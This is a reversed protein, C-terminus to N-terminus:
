THHLLFNITSILFVYGSAPLDQLNWLPWSGSGYPPPHSGFIATVLYFTCFPAPLWFTQIINPLAEPLIAALGRPQLTWRLPQPIGARLYPSLSALLAQFGPGNQYTLYVEWSNNPKFSWMRCVPRWSAELGFIVKIEKDGKSWKKPAVTVVTHKWM